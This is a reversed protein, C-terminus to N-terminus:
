EDEEEETDNNEYSKKILNIIDNDSLKKEQILKKLEKDVKLM